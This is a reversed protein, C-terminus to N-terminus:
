TKRHGHPCPTPLTGFTWSLGRYTPLYTTLIPCFNTWMTKSHGRINLYEYIHGGEAVLKRTRQIHSTSNHSSNPIVCRNNHKRQPLFKGKFSLEVKAACMRVIPWFILFHENHILYDCINPGRAAM